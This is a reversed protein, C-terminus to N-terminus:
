LKAHLFKTRNSEFKYLKTSVMVLRMLILQQIKNGLSKVKLM